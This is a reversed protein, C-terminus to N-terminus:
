GCVGDEVQDPILASERLNGVDQMSLKEWERQLPAHRHAWEAM